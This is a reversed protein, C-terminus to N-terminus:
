RGATEKTGPKGIELNVLRLLDRHLRLDLQSIDFRVVQRQKELVLYIRDRHGHDCETRAVPSREVQM